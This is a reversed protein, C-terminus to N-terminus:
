HKALEDFAEEATDFDSVANLAHDMPGWAKSYCGKTNVWNKEDLSVQLDKKIKKGTNTKKIRLFVISADEFHMEAKDESHRVIRHKM